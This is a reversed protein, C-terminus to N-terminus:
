FQVSLVQHRYCDGMSALLNGLRTELSYSACRPVLSAGPVKVRRATRLGLRGATKEIGVTHADSVCSKTGTEGM